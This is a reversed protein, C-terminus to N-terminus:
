WHLRWNSTVRGPQNTMDLSKRKLQLLTSPTKGFDFYYQLGSIVQYRGRNDFNAKVATVELNKMPMFAVGLIGGVGTGTYQTFGLFNNLQLGATVEINGNGVLKQDPYFSVSTQMDSYPVYRKRLDGSHGLMDYARTVPIGMTWDINIADQLYYSAAPRIWANYVERVHNGSANVADPFNHWQQLYFVGLKGSGYDWVPGLNLNIKSGRGGGAGFQGQLGFSQYVPIVWMVEAAGFAKNGNTPDNNDCTSLGNQHPYSCDSDKDVGVLGSVKGLWELNAVGAQPPFTVAVLALVLIVRMVIKM